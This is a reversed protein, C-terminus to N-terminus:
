RRWRPTPTPSPPPPPTRGPTAAPTDTPTATPTGGPNVAETPTATPAGSSADTPTPTPTPTPPDGPEGALGTHVYTLFKVSITHIRHRNVGTTLASIALERGRSDYGVFMGMHVIKGDEAWLILDGVEPNTKSLLGREKGWAYYQRAPIRRKGFREFLGAQKYVYYILGSCDFTAPGETGMRFRKGIQAEAISVVLAQEADGAVTSAPLVAAAMCLLLGGVTVRRFM